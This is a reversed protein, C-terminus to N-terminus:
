DTEITTETRIADTSRSAVSSTPPMIEAGDLHRDLATDCGCKVRPRALVAPADSRSRRM